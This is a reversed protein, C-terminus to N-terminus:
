GGFLRKFLGPKKHQMARSSRSFEVMKMEKRWDPMGRAFVQQPTSGSRQISYGGALMSFPMTLTNLYNFPANTKLTASYNFFSPFIFDSVAISVGNVIIGYGVQEVPDCLEGCWLTGNGDDYFSNTYRDGITELVEHSLTGSVTYQGPNAPNFLMVAGGNSLIPECMIYGDVKDNTLEHFGLAGAIQADNDIIYIIWAYGPIDKENSYFQITAAKLNWAPLM